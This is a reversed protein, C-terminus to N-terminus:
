RSSRAAVKTAFEAYDGAQDQWHTRYSEPENDLEWARVGYRRGWGQATSLTGGPAYREALKGAFAAAAEMDAPASKGPERRGAWGPPGGANGGVVPAQMLINLRRKEADIVFADLERWASPTTTSLDVPGDPELASWYVPMFTWRLGMSVEKDLDPIKSSGWLAGGKGDWSGTHGLYPSDFGDLEFAAYETPSPPEIPDAMPPYNKPVQGFFGFLLGVLLLVLLLLLGAIGGVIWACTKLLRRLLPTPTPTPTPQVENVEEDKGSSM